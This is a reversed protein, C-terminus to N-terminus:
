LILGMSIIVIIGIVGGLIFSFFSKASLKLGLAEAPIDNKKLLKTSGVIM